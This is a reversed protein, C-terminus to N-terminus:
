LGTIRAKKRLESLYAEENPDKSDKQKGLEEAKFVVEAAYDDNVQRQKCIALYEVGRPTVRTGTTNGKAKEILPKWDAPMAPALVRGLNLISVDRMTAAFAKSQDCGPFKARSAEAEAQRKATIKGRKSEPIVFVVQQLFYETTVPKQKGGLKKALDAGNSRASAFRANVVRPWSMQVAIYSKFHASTVGAQELVKNLQATTMKNSKAFREYAADVEDTSVSMQVRAVERRKLEEDVLQDRAMKGLNGKARQLRLFATRHAIDGNTIATNNVVIAVSSAAHAVPALPAAVAALVLAAM